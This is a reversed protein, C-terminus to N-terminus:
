ERADARQQAACLDLGVVGVEPDGVEDEVGGPPAPRAVTAFDLEGFRLEIQEFEQHSVLTDHEVLARDVLADPARDVGFEFFARQQAFFQKQERCVDTIGAKFM